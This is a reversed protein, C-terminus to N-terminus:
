HSTTRRRTIPSRETASTAFIRSLRGPATRASWCRANFCRARITERSPTVPHGLRAIYLIHHLVEQEIASGRISEERPRHRGVVSRGAVGPHGREEARARSGEGEIVRTLPRRDERHLLPDAGAGGLRGHGPPRSPPPQAQLEDTHPDARQQDTRAAQRERPSQGRRRLADSMRHEGRDADVDGRRFHRCRARPIGARRISRPDRSRASPHRSRSCRSSGGRFPLHARRRPRWRRSRHGTALGALGMALGVLRVALGILRVALGILRM